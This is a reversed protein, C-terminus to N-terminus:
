VQYIELKKLENEIITINNNLTEDRKGLQNLSDRWSNYLKLIRKLEVITYPKGHLKLITSESM